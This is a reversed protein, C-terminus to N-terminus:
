FTTWDDNDPTNLTKIREGGPLDFTDTGIKFKSGDAKRGYIVVTESGRGSLSVGVCRGSEAVATSMNGRKPFVAYSAYNGYSCLVFNKGAPINPQKPETPDLDGAHASTAGTLGILGTAMLLGVTRVAHTTTTRM